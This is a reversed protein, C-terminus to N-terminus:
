FMKKLISISVTRCCQASCRMFALIIYCTFPFLVYNLNTQKQLQELQALVSMSYRDILRRKKGLYVKFTVTLKEVPHILGAIMRKKEGERCYSFNLVEHHIDLELTFSKWRLISWFM